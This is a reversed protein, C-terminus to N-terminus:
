PDAAREPAGEPSASASCPDIRARERGDDFVRPAPCRERENGARSQFRPFLRAIVLALVRLDRRAPRRRRQGDRRKMTLEVRATEPSLAAPMAKPERCDRSAPHGRAAPDTTTAGERRAM